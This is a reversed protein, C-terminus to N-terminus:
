FSLLTVEFKSFQKKYLAREVAVMKRNETKFGPFYKCILDRSLIFIAERIPKPQFKTRRWNILIQRLLYEYARQDYNLGFVPFEELCRKTIWFSDISRKQKPATLTIGQPNRRYRYVINKIVSFQFPMAQLIFSVPTDEFLFGEPFVFHQLVSWRYIKGWAFGSLMENSHNERSEMPVILKEEGNPFFEVWGGQVIDANASEAEKILAEIANPELLDDSDIFMIYKGYITELATNRAGSLGRNNQNIYQLYKVGVSTQVPILEKSNLNKVCPLYDEIRNKTQDTSGDNVITVLLSYNTKQELVSALCEQIYKEVNYAPIIIQLDYQIDVKHTTYCKGCPCARYKSLSEYATASGMDVSQNFLISAPKIVCQKVIQKLKSNM